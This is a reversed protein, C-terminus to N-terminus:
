LDHMRINKGFFPSQFINLLLILANKKQFSNVHKCVCIYKTYM